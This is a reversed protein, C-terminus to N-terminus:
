KEEEIKIGFAKEALDDLSEDNMGQIFLEIEENNLPIVRLFNSGYGHLYIDINPNFSLSCDYGNLVYSRGLVRINDSLAAGRNAIQRVYPIRLCMYQGRKIYVRKKKIGLFDKFELEGSFRTGDLNQLKFVEFKREEM